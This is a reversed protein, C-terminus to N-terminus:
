FREVMYSQLEQDNAVKSLVLNLVDNLVLEIDENSASLAGTRKATGNYTRVLKGRPTEATVDIIVEANMENSMMSHTVTVLAQDITLTITNNSNPVISFGQSEFQQTLINDLTLRLNQKAHLPEVRSHGSDVIAIYQAARIDKSTLMFSKGRVIDSNSLTAKPMLNLQSQPSTACATLLMMSVIILLKKM